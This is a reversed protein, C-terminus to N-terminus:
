ALSKKLAKRREKNVKHTVEAKAKLDLVVNEPNRPCLDESGSFLCSYETDGTLACVPLQVGQTLPHLGRKTQHKCNM